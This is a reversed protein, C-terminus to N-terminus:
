SRLTRYDEVLRAAGRRIFGLEDAALFFSAGREVWRRAGDVGSATTGFPVRHENCLELIEEMPGVVDPHDYQGPRGM